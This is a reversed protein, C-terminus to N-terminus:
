SSVSSNQGSWHVMAQNHATDGALAFTSSTLQFEEQDSFSADEGGEEPRFRSWTEASRASRTRRWSAVDTDKEVQAGNEAYLRNDKGDLTSNETLDGDSPSLAAARSADGSLRCLKQQGNLADTQLCSTNNGRVLPQVKSLSEESRLEAINQKEDGGATPKADPSVENFGVFEEDPEEGFHAFDLTSLERPFATILPLQCSPICRVEAKTGGLISTLTFLWIWESFIIFLWHGLRTEM